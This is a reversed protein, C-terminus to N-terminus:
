CATMLGSISWCTIAACTGLRTRTGCSTASCVNREGPPADGIQEALQWGNKRRASSLLGELYLGARRRPEARVFLRGLRAQLAGLEDRWRLVGVSDSVM